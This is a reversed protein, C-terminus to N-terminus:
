TTELNGLEFIVVLLALFIDFGNHLPLACKSNKKEKRAEDTKRDTM